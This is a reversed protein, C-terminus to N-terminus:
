TRHYARWITCQSGACVPKRLGRRVAPTLLVRAGQNMCVLLSCLRSIRVQPVTTFQVDSLTRNGNDAIAIVDMTYLIGPKLFNAPVDFSTADGPLDVLLALSSEEEEVALQVAEAGPIEEWLVTFGSASVLTSGETPFAIM